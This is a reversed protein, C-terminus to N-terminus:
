LNAGTLLQPPSSKLERYRLNAMINADPVPRIKVDKMGPTLDRWTLFANPYDTGFVNTTPGAFKAIPDGGAMVLAVQVGDLPGVAFWMDDEPYDLPPPPAPAPAPPANGILELARAVVRARDNIINDGPCGTLGWHSGCDGPDISHYAVGVDYISDAVNIATGHVAHLWALVRADTEIQADTLGRWVDGTAPSEHEVSLWGTYNGHCQAWAADDTDVWQVLRGDDANGFHASAGGSRSLFRSEAAAIGGVIHHFAWGRHGGIAGPSYNPSPRWEAFPCLM